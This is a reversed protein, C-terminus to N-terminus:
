YKKAILTIDMDNISVTPNNRIGAERVQNRDFNPRLHVPAKPRNTMAQHHKGSVPLVAQFVPPQLPTM